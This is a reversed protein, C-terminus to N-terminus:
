IWLGKQKGDEHEVEHAVKGFRLASLIAFIPQSMPLKEARFDKNEAIAEQVKCDREHPM